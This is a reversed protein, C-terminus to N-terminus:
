NTHAEVNYDRALHRVHDHLDKNADKEEEVGDSARKREKRTLDRRDNLDASIAIRVEGRLTTGRAVPSSSCSRFLEVM